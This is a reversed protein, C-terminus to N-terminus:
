KYVLWKEWIKVHDLAKSKVYDRGWYTKCDKKSIYFCEQENKVLTPTWISM